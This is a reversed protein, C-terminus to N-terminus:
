PQYTLGRFKNMLGRSPITLTENNECVKSRSKVTLRTNVQYETGTKFRYLNPYCGFGEM